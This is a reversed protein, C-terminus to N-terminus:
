LMAQRYGLRPWLLAQFMRGGDLPYGILLVNLLFGFWNVWFFMALLVQWTELGRSTEHLLTGGLWKGEHFNYLEPRWVQEWRPDFSPVFHCAALICGVIVCLGLNVLPGGAACIFNARPTHPVECAALGGLPWLLVERADGDVYRAAFCHGFEHLLVSFFVLTLLALMASGAGPPWKPDTAAKLWMALVFIFFLLHIRITIGFLRGIPLSYSFPDRM